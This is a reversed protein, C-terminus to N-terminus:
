NMRPTMVLETYSQAKIKKIYINKLNKEGEVKKKLTTWKREKGEGM